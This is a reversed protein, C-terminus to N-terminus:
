DDNTAHAPHNSPPCVVIMMAVLNGVTHQRGASNHQPQARPQPSAGDMSFQNDQKLRDVSAQKAQQM